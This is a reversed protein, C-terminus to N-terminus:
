VNVAQYRIIEHREPDLGSTELNLQLQRKIDHVGQDALEVGGMEWLDFLSEQLQANM